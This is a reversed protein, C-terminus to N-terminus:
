TSDSSKDEKAKLASDSFKDIMDKEFTGKPRFGPKAKLGTSPPAVYKKEPQPKRYSL